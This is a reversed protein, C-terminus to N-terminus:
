KKTIIELLDRTALLRKLLLAKTEDDLKVTEFEFDANNRLKQIADDLEASLEVPQNVVKDYYKEITKNDTEGTMYDVSVNFYDAFFKIKDYPPTIKGKEYASITARQIDLKQALEDQTLDHNKRLDHLRNAFTAM